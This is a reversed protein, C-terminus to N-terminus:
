IETRQYLGGVLAWLILLKGDREGRPTQKSDFPARGGGGSKASDPAAQKTQTQVQQAAKKETTGGGSAPTTQQTVAAKKEKKKAAKEEASKRTSAAVIQQAIFENPDHDEDYFMSYKNSVNVGYEVETM